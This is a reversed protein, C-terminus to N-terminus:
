AQSDKAGSPSMINIILDTPIGVKAGSSSM